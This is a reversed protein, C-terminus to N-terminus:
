GLSDELWQFIELPKQNPEISRRYQRSSLMFRRYKIPCRIPRNTMVPGDIFFGLPLQAHGIRQSHPTSFIIYELEKAVATEHPQLRLSNKM